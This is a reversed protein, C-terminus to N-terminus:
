PAASPVQRRPLAGGPPRGRGGARPGWLSQSRAVHPRTLSCLPRARPCVPSWSPCLTSHWLRPPSTRGQARPCGAEGRYIVPDMGHMRSLREQPGHPHPPSCVCMVDEGHSPAKAMCPVQGHGCHGCRRAPSISAGPGDRQNEDGTQQSFSGSVRCARSRASTGVEGVSGEDQLCWSPGGM